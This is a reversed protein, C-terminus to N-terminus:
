IKRFSVNCSSSYSSEHGECSDFSFSEQLNNTISISWFHFLITVTFRHFDSEFKIRMVTLLSTLCNKQRPKDALNCLIPFQKIRYLKNNHLSSCIFVFLEM